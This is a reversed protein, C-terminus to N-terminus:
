DFVYKNRGAALGFLSFLVSLIILMILPTKWMHTVDFLYGIFIPGIAALVYGVSQAMGSLDAAQSSNRARMGLFALALAFNGGLPIGILIISIVMILYTSGFLLGCYGAIGLIGLVLVVYRQTEFKAAIMPVFFSFPVGIFQAISLMWGATVMDVGYDYLIEPLWSITIYFWSSQFGMYLAVQWALSSRWINNKKHGTQHVSKVSESTKKNKKGLYIWLILAIIAPLVWVILAMKWGLNLGNAIPISVGSAIAAVMTMITSYTSTMLAVKLPFKEKIVGPLLVNCFAIGLGILLTGTFLFAIVTISRIALGVLLLALGIVLAYENTVRRGIRAVLPSMIAFAVLPLSTLLGVSWNSLGADDRIMGLLPGVSTIAPRLNIAVLIIGTILLTRQWRNASDKTLINQEAM